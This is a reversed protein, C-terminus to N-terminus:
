FTFHISDSTVPTSRIDSILFPFVEYQRHFLIKLKSKTTFVTKCRIKAGLIVTEISYIM